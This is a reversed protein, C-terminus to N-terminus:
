AREIEAEKKAKDIIYDVKAATKFSPEAKTGNLISNTFVEDERYYEPDGLLFKVNDNLDHRFWTYSKGSKMKLDANYDNVELIGNSGIIKLGFIPM